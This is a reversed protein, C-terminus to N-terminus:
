ERFSGAGDPAEVELDRWHCLGLQCQHEIATDALDCDIAALARRGIAVMHTDLKGGVTVKAAVAEVARDRLTAAAESAADLLAILEPGAARESGRLTEAVPM